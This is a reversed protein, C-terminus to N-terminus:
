SDAFHVSRTTEAQPAAHVALGLDIDADPIVVAVDHSTGPQPDDDDAQVARTQSRTRPPDIIGAEILDRDTLSLDLQDIAALEKLSEVTLPKGVIDTVETPLTKCAEDHPTFKRVHDMRIKIQLNDILRRATLTVSGTSMVMYPSKLLKPILKRSVGPPPRTFNTIFIIDGPSINMDKKKNRNFKRHNAERLEILNERADKIREQLLVHRAESDVDVAKSIIIGRGEGWGM